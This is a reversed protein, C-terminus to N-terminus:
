VVTALSPLPPEEEILEDYSLDCPMDSFIETVAAKLDSSNWRKRAADRARATREEATMTKLCAKGGKRGLAAAAKNKKKMAVAM